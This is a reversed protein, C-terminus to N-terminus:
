TEQASGRAAVSHRAHHPSTYYGGWREERARLAPAAETVAPEVLRLELLGHQHLLRLDEAVPRVDPLLEVLRVGRPWLPAVAQLARALLEEKVDVEYGSPHRFLWLPSAGDAHVGSSLAVLPSAMFWSAFPGREASAPANTFIPSHLQRYTLLDLADGPALGTLGCPGLEDAAARPLRGTEYNFDADAVFTLGWRGALAAFESRWFAQNEPALFEHAVYTPDAAAVFAYERSLLQSYPHDVGALSAAVSAAVQRAAAARERLGPIHATHALLSERVMGRVTWGPRTNYNLYVLGGRALREACLSLLQERAAVSVWSVVGHAIIFEFSGSLEAAAAAFDAGIFRVNSLGLERRREEARGIAFRSSDVGVFEAGRRYFAMPLLNAGDGCGLELVRYGSLSPQPGGHLASCAALREPATWDIPSSRYPFVDYPNEVDPETIASGPGAHM